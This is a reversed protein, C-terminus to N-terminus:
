ISKGKKYVRVCVRFVLCLRLCAHHTVHIILLEPASELRVKVLWIYLLGTM